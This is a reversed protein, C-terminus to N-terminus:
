LPPSLRTALALLRGDTGRAGILSLGMPMQAAETPMPMNVVPLQMATWM